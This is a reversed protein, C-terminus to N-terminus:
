HAHRASAAADIRSTAHFRVAVKGAREFVLTLAPDAGERVPQKLGFLMLHAGGPALVAQGRAPVPIAPVRAMRAIGGQAQHTHLELRAACTCAASVLRDPRPGSNRITVYAATNPSKGLSARIQPNALAIDGSPAAQAAPGGFGVAAAMALLLVRASM